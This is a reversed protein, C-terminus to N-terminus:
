ASLFRYLNRLMGATAGWIWRERGADNYPMSYWTRVRGQWELAHRRHHAPNMLFALPVEFVASVEHPNPQVCLDPPVLAVVPTVVFGTGTRYLPLTGLVELRDPEFGVEEQAERLAAHVATLDSPDQKGGPFAIQGAHTPLHATRQTLLVTLRDRMVLPVLVSAPCPPPESIAEEERLEPTWVPPAAFRARLAQPELGAEHVAPLHPDSGLVPVERPDFMLPTLEASWEM